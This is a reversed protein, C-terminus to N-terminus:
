WTPTTGLLATVMNTHYRTSCDDPQHPVQASELRNAAAAYHLPTRQYSDVCGIEVRSLSTLFALPLPSPSISAVHLPLHGASDPQTLLSPCAELLVQPSTTCVFGYCTQDSANRGANVCKEGECVRICVSVHVCTHMCVHVCM